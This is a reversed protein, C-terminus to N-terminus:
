SNKVSQRAVLEWSDDRRVWILLIDMDLELPKGDVILSANSELNVVATIGYMRIAISKLTIANYVQQGSMVSHIFEEKTQTWGNTHGYTLDDSLLKSLMVSDRELLASRLQGTKEQISRKEEEDSSASLLDSTAVSASSIFILLIMLCFATIRRNIKMTISTQTNITM